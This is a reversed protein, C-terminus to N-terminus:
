ASVAKWALWAYTGWASALMVAVVLLVALAAASVAGQERKPLMGARPGQTMLVQMPHHQPPALNPIEVQHPRTIAAGQLHQLLRHKRMTRRVDTKDANVYPHPRDRDTLSLTPLTVRATTM